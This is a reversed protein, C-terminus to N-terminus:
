SVPDVLTMQFMEQADTVSGAERPKARKCVASGFASTCPFSYWKGDQRLVQRYTWVRLGM